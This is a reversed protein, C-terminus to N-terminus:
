LSGYGGRLDQLTTQGERQIPRTAMTKTPGATIGVKTDVM